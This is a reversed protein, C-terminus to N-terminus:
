GCEPFCPARSLLPASIATRLAMIKTSARASAAALDFLDPVEYSESNGDLGAGVTRSRSGGGRAPLTRRFEPASSYRQTAGDAPSGSHLEATSAGCLEATRCGPAAAASRLEAACSAANGSTYREPEM